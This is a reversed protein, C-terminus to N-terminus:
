NQNEYAASRGTVFGGTSGPTSNGCILVYAALLLPWQLDRGCSHKRLQSSNLKAPVDAAIFVYDAIEQSSSAAFINRLEIYGFHRVIYFM